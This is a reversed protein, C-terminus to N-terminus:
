GGSVVACTVTRTALAPRRRECPTARVVTSSAAPLSTASRSSRATDSSHPLLTDNARSQLVPCSAPPASRAEPHADAGRALGLGRGGGLAGNSM